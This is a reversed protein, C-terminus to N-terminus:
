VLDFQRIAPSALLREVDFALRIRQEDQVLGVVFPALSEPLDTESSLWVDKGIASQLTNTIAYATELELVTANAGFVVAVPKRWDLRTLDRAGALYVVKEPPLVPKEDFTPAGELSAVGWGIVEGGGHSAKLFHHYTGPLSGAPARVRVFVRSSEGPRLEIRSATVLTSTIGDFAVPALALELKAGSTNTLTFAAVTVSSRFRSRSVPIRLQNVAADPASYKRILRMLEFAEPKPRRM